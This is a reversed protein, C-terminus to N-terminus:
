LRPSSSRRASTTMPAASIWGSLEYSELSAVPVFEFMVADFAGIGSLQVAQDGSHASTVLSLEGNISAAWDGLGAEFGGDSVLEEASAPTHGIAFFTAILVVLPGLTIPRLM